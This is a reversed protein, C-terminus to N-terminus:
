VWILGEFINCLGVYDDEQNRDQDYWEKTQM